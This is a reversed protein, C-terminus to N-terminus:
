RLVCSAASKDGLGGTNGTDVGVAVLSLNSAQALPSAGDLATPPRSPTRSSAASFDSEEDGSMPVIDGGSCVFPNLPNAFWARLSFLCRRFFFFLWKKKRRQKNENLAQNAFGNFGKTQEPPSMTGMHANRLGIAFLGDNVDWGIVTAGICV